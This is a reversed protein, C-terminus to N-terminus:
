IMKTVCIRNTPLGLVVSVLDTIRAVVTIDDAGQCVVAVGQILPFLQTQVLPQKGSEADIMTHENEYLSKRDLTGDQRTTTETDNKEDQAYVTEGASELTVMVRVEGANQVVSLMEVLRAELAKVYDNAQAQATQYSAMGENVTIEPKKKSSFLADSLFILFIGAIGALFLANKKQFLDLFKRLMPNPTQEQKM